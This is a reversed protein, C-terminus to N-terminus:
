SFNFWYEIAGNNKEKKEPKPSHRTKQAAPSHIVKAPPPSHQVKGAIPSRQVKKRIKSLVPSQHPPLPSHRVKGVVPSHVPGSKEEKKRQGRTKIPSIEKPASVPTRPTFKMPSPEFASKPPIKLPTSSIERKGSRLARILTEIGRVGNKLIDQVVDILSDDMPVGDILLSNPTLTVKPLRSLVGLVFQAHNQEDKPFQNVIGQIESHSSSLIPKLRSSFKDWEQNEKIQKEDRKRVYADQLKALKVDSADDQSNMKPTEKKLSNYEDPSVLYMKNMKM